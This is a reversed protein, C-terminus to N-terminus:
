VLCLLLYVYTPPRPFLFMQIKLYVNIRTSLPLKSLEGVDIQLDNHALKHVSLWVVFRVSLLVVLPFIKYNKFINQLILFLFTSVLVWKLFPAFGFLWM